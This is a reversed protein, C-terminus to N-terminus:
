SLEAPCIAYDNSGTRILVARMGEPNKGCYSIDIRQDVLTQGTEESTLTMRLPSTWKCSEIRVYAGLLVTDQQTKSERRWVLVVLAAIILLIPVSIYWFTTFFDPEAVYIAAVFPLLMLIALAKVVNNQKGFRKNIQEHLEPPLERFPIDRITAENIAPAYVSPDQSFRSQTDAAVGTLRAARNPDDWFPHESVVTPFVHYHNSKRQPKQCLMVPVDEIADTPIHMTVVLNHILEGTDDLRLTVYHYISDSDSGPNSVTKTYHEIVTGFRVGCEFPGLMKRFMYIVLGLLPLLVVLAFPNRAQISFYSGLILMIGLVIVGVIWARIHEKRIIRYAEPSPPNFTIDQVQVSHLQNQQTM